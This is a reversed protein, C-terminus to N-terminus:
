VVLRPQVCVSADQTWEHSVRWISVQKSRWDDTVEALKQADFIVDSFSLILFKCVFGQGCLWLAADQGKWSMRTIRSVPRCSIHTRTMRFHGCQHQSSSLTVIGDDAKEKSWQLTAAQMLCGNTQEHWWYENGESCCFRFESLLINETFGYCM